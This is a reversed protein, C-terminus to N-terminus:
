SAPGSSDGPETVEAQKAPLRSIASLIADVTPHVSGLLAGSFLWAPIVRWNHALGLLMTGVGVLVGVLAGFGIGFAFKFKTSPDRYLRGVEFALDSPGAVAVGAAWEKPVEPLDHIGPHRGTADNCRGGNLLFWAWALVKTM